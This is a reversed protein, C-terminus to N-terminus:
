SIMGRLKDKLDAKELVDKEILKLYENIDIPRVSIFPKDLSEDITNIFRRMNKETMRMSPIYLIFIQRVNAM